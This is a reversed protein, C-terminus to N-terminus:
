EGRVSRIRLGKMSWLLQMFEEFDLDDDAFRCTIESSLGYPTLMSSLESPMQFIFPANQGQCMEYFGALTQVDQSTAQDMIAYTLAIEVLPTNMRSARSERGSVHQFTTTSFGPTYITSWGRGQLTPFVPWIGAASSKADIVPPISVKGEIWNGAQWNGADGWVQNLQPFYPFPRADWCWASCFAQQIMPVGSVSPNNAGGNDLFWYEYIAQLALLFLNQDPLPLYTSGANQWISWYPTGSETSNETYFLNPQNTCKDCSPFGYEAFIVSKSNPVWQTVSGRPIEGQGDGTDYIAQHQNNWFWRLQKNALLEQNQNYPQRNQALRDGEPLSVQLGTGNPDFGRGDNNGDAYFWNFKEGGEINAKLYPLSYLRPSGSLGLGVANASSPPWTTPAPNSWNQTADVGGTGTTWDSLPLYNDLSVFDVDANAYLLDLYPWQGSISNGSADTSYQWGLWSSWDPSYTILNRTHGTAPASAMPVKELGAADFVGRVEGILELLGFNNTGGAQGYLFPHDWAPLGNSDAVGAEVWTHGRVTELGRLESGVLFLDVGGAMTCLMAYHLIMRRYTWDTASGSGLNPNYYNVTKGAGAGSTSPSFMSATATGLFKMVATEAEVTCDIGHYTIRGRWPNGGSADDGLLFPYFVVKLGQEKIYKICAIISQDAPTGGYTFSQQSNSTMSSIPIIGASTENLGSCWWNEPVDTGSSRNWFVSPAEVYQNPPVAGNLPYTKNNLYTTSPYVNCISADTHNFFWSVVVAVTTCEPHAAILQSIALTLDGVESAGGRDSFYNICAATKETVRQGNYAFPSYTFEGTGPIMNVGSVLAM